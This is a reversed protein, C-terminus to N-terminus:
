HVVGKGAARIVTNEACSAGRGRRFLGHRGFQSCAQMRMTQPRVICLLGAVGLSVNSICQVRRGQGMPQLCHQLSSSGIEIGPQLTVQVTSTYRRRADLQLRRKFTVYGDNGDHATPIPSDLHDKVFRASMMNTVCSHTAVAADVQGDAQSTERIVTRSICFVDGSNQHSRRGCYNVRHRRFAV